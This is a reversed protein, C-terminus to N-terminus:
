VTLIDRLVFPLNKDAIVGQDGDWELGGCGRSGKGRVEKRNWEQPGSTGKFDMQIFFSFSAPVCEMRLCFRDLADTGYTTIVGANGQTALIKKLFCASKLMEQLHENLM